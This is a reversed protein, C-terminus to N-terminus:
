PGHRTVVEPHLIPPMGWRHDPQQPSSHLPYTQHSQVM